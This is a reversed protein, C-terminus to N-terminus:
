EAKAGGDPASVWDLFPRASKEAATVAREYDRILKRGFATLRAGGGGTGGVETEILPQPFVESLTNLLHWARRYSMGLARAAGSIGGEEDIKRLLHIKGPGVVADGVRVKIRLAAGKGTKGSRKKAM